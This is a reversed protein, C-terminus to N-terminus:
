FKAIVQARIIRPAGPSINNNGDATAIYGRDFLNEINIQARVLDTVQYFLGLDFRTYGPLRVTNDAAAFTHTQHIAGVGFSFSPTVAFKNWLTVANFPVLGVHNGPVILASSFGSVIRADTFAYGGAVQWWDTVFGNAGIEVGKANTQGSLLFFGPRNPDALRQNFRDLDYLAGTLQLTSSVDWKVGVERNEFREPEAIALGESLASFQDGASPLYSISYNGYFALSDVPKFVLGVRPSLLDDIRSNTVNTRRDTSSFDFHDYRLGGIVQVHPGIEIQDQVYVAALGLDYRSNSSSALNRFSVPVRSVPSLPNVTLTQTGTTAFFGEERYTIGEQKGLEFGALLTHALPGTAFKYTFDNQNFFNTRPTDNNFASLDVTAGAANVAGGARISPYVVQYTKAYDAYRFQSRMEVGSAFRHDLVATAIHADVRSYSLDPNGFFTRINDRYRYPRGLQSPIGRDATRDDHFYEYSLKLTTEPGLLITATPNIGWRRLDVHDRYTGSDEFMGNLRFFVSDSVRDGVDVAVRKNFYQGGQLIVERVPTGTADKLVRNVVGGGGGRGFIMANPGKLVEIREVNYLDRYYMADDRMGNVYFDASSQQGRIVVEDRNGAGQHLFVGPVYRLAETVGQFGQDQVQERTVVTVAQPTDILQTDTKTASRSRNARYGTTHGGTGEVNLQDLTVEAHHGSDPIDAQAKAARVDSMFPVATLVTIMRLRAFPHM